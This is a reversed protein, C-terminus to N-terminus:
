NDKDEDDEPLTDFDEDSSDIRCSFKNLITEENM